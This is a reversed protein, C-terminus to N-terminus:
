SRLVRRFHDLEFGLVQNQCIVGCQYSQWRASHIVNVGAADPTSAPLILHDDTFLFCPMAERRDLRVCPHVHGQVVRGDPREGDGHIIQWDDLCVQECIPMEENLNQLGRDHNGPVIAALEIQNSELWQRFGTLVSQRPGAEFLDGAIILKRIGHEHISKQLASLQQDVNRLPVAEGQRRRAEAYGLHLDSVVATKSPLHLAARAPTLLWADAVIM